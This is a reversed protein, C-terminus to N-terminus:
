YKAIKQQDYFKILEQIGEEVSSVLVGHKEIIGLVFHNIAITPIKYQNSEPLRIDSWHAIIKKPSYSTNEAHAAFWGLEAAVGSDQPLSGLDVFLVDTTLMQQRDGLYIEVPTPLDQKSTNFPATIPNFIEHYRVGMAKEIMKEEKRRADQEAETFLSGAIYIKM